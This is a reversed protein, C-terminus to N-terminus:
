DAQSMRLGPAKTIHGIAVAPHGAANLAGLAADVQDPAVAALLGGGTQPDFVIQARLDQPLNAVCVSARNLDHLSARLGTALLAEVGALLPLKALDLTAGVGSAAIMNHLHGALGFGTVDTMAHAGALIGAADGQPRSMVEVAGLLAAAGARGQMEAALILGSGLPKTLILVDGPAAGTLTIAKDVLGTLSLGISFEAGQSSHGGVLSAGATDLVDSVAAGVEQMTRVQLTESMPPLTVSLLGAQPAAGMAWIDGLAHVTAIRAMVYPDSLFGRLHDTTLVQRQGGIQLIAADDGIQSLVDKRGSKPLVALANSLAGGGIKAGCGGCLPPADVLRARSDLVMEQPLAPAPMAPLDHFKRMFARDIRDKWRWMLAGGARLGSKDAMARKDGLSILKLYDKQPRYPRRRGGTLDARLNDFLVPAERVAFVGAKPRPDHSLHACDGVAYVDPDGLSSLDAGVGIFGNELALGTQQLWSHPRAGAAGVTQDSAVLRGDELVVGEAKVQAVRANTLLTIGARELEALLRTRTRPHIDRMPEADAEIVTVRAKGAVRKRMAHMMALSLEIGAVGGGIVIADPRADGTELAGLYGRWLGAFRGLPKAAVAHETFGPLEPMSSTIGVDVSLTDFMVDPRGEIQVRRTELDIGTARGVVLRAGAFRTLTTLDIELAARPYHGAVHGPLMGTYPAVPNPDIVTLRAGPLPNMGWKRLVLAHAHGGGIFVVDKTLPVPLHVTDPKRNSHHFTEQGAM